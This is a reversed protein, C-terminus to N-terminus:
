YCVCLHRYGAYYNCPNDGNKWTGSAGGNYGYSLYTPGSYDSYDSCNNGVTGDSNLGAYWSSDPWGAWSAGNMGPPGDNIFSSFSSAITTGDILKVPRAGNIGHYSIFSKIGNTSSHGMLGLFTTCSVSPSYTAFASECRANIATLDGTYQPELDMDTQYVHIAGAVSANAGSKSNGGDKGCSVLVILMTLALVKM